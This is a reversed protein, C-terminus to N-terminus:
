RTTTTTWGTSRRPPISSRSPSRASASSRGGPPDDRPELVRGVDAPAAEAGAEAGRQSVADLLVPGRLGPVPGDRAHQAVQETAERWMARKEAPDIGFGGLEALPVGVRRHRVRRARELRPRPDRHARRRPGPPQLRAADARHRPRPPHAEHAALLGRPLGRAGVLALVGRPLPARGGVRLRHRAPRRARGPRAGGPLPAARRGRGLAAAAPARLLNRVEHHGRRPFRATRALIVRPRAGSGPAGRRESPGRAARRGWYGFPGVTGYLM